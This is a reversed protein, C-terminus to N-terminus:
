LSQSLRGARGSVLLVDGLYDTLYPLGENVFQFRVPDAIEDSGFVAITLLRPSAYQEGGMHIFDGEHHRADTFVLSISEQTWHFDATDVFPM